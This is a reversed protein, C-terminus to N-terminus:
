KGNARGKQKRRGLFSKFKSRKEEQGGAAAKTLIKMVKARNKGNMSFVCLQLPTNGSSDVHYLSEPNVKVLNNVIEHDAGTECAIHLPLKQGEAAISASHPYASILDRVLYFPANSFCVAHIPLFVWQVRDTKASLRYVWLKAMEPNNKLHYAASDWNKTDIARYLKAMDSNYNIKQGSSTVSLSKEFEENPDISPVNEQGLSYDSSDFTQSMIASFVSTTDDKLLEKTGIAINKKAKNKKNSHNSLTGLVKSEDDTGTGYTGEEDDYSNDDKLSGKSGYLMESIGGLMGSFFNEDVITQSSSTINTEGSSWSHSAGLESGSVETRYSNKTSFDSEDDDDDDDDESDSEELLEIKSDAVPKIGKNDATALGKGKKGVKENDSVAREAKPLDAVKVMVENSELM